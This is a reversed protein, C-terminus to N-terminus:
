WLVNNLLVEFNFCVLVKVLVCLIVFVIKWFKCEYSYIEFLCFSGCVIKFLWLVSYFCFCKFRFVVM